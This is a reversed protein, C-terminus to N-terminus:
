SSIGLRGGGVLLRALGAAIGFAPRKGGPDGRRTFFDELAQASRLRRERRGFQGRAETDAPGRDFREALAEHGHLAVPLQHGIALAHQQQRALEIEGGSADVAMTVPEPEEDRILAARVHEQRGPFHLLHHVAVPHEGLTDTVVLASAGFPVDDFDGFACMALEDPAEEVLAADGDDHRLVLPDFVVDQNRRAIRLMGLRSLHNGDLDGIRRGPVGRRDAADDLDEALDVIRPHLDLDRNALEVDRM